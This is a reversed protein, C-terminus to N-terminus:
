HDRHAKSREIWAFIENLEERRKKAHKSFFELQEAFQYSRALSLWRREMALYDRALFPDPEIKASYACDEARRLCDRVPESLNNPM